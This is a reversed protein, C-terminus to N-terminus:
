SYFKENLSKLTFTTTVFPYGSHLFGRTYTGLAM